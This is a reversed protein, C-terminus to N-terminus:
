DRATYAKCRGADASAQRLAWGSALEVAGSGEKWGLPPARSSVPTQSDANPNIPRLEAVRSAQEKSGEFSPRLTHPM